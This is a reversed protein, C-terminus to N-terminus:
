EAPELIKMNVRTNTKAGIVRLLVRLSKATQGNKGIIKGMDDRAVQLNVLVGLDDTVEDVVVKEPQTVLQDVVYKVFDKASATNGM